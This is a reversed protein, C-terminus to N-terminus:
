PRGAAGAGAASPESPRSPSANQYRLSPEIPSPGSHGEYVAIYDLIREKWQFRSMLTERARLGLQDAREPNNLLTLIQAAMGARDDAEVLVGNTGNAIIEPIGGVATAVIPKGYYAAELLVIGFPEARSPLVVLACAAFFAAVETHPLEGMFAVRDDIMLRRALAKHEGLLPGSGVLVLSLDRADSSIQAFAALLTDIGKKRVHRSVCLIFPQSAAAPCPPPIRAYRSLDVGNHVYTVKLKVSPFAEITQEALAKSCAVIRNAGRMILRYLLRELLTSSAYSDVDAGHVSVVVPVGLLRGAIILHIFYPTLFHANVVDIKKSQILRVLHFLTIPLYALFVPISLLTSDRVIAPMPCYYARHGWPNVRAVLGTRPMPAQYLLEVQRGNQELWHVLDRFVLQVGGVGADNASTMLINRVQKGNAAM